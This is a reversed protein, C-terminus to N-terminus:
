DGVDGFDAADYGGPGHGAGGWEGARVFWVSFLALLYTLSFAASFLSRESRRDRRIEAVDIEALVAWRIHDVETFTYASLVRVGRYDETIRVGSEGALALRVTESDVRTRLITSEESFRSDSRMLFDQGVLYTEGSEGMGATFQMIQQIRDTPLQMALVGLFEGDPGNMARAAFMAPANGSPPYPSFDSIAVHGSAADDRAHRFVYSLGSDKWPGDILNTRYDSEKEVTYRVNGDPDILFFDYYDRETVFQQAVDHLETDDGERLLERHWALLDDSTSWFIIETRATDLYEMLADRRLSSLLEFRDEFESIRERQQLRDVAIGGVLFVVALVGALAIWSKRGMGQGAVEAGERM